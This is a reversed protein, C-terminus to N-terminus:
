PKWALRRRPVLSSEDRYERHRDAAAAALRPASWRQFPRFPRPAYCARKKDRRYRSADNLSDILSTAEPQRSRALSLPSVTFQYRARYFGHRWDSFEERCIARFRKTGNASRSACGRRIIPALEPSWGCTFSDRPDMRIVTREGNHLDSQCLTACRQIRPHIEAM